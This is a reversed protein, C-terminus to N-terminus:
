IGLWVDKLKATITINKEFGFKKPSFLTDKSLIEENGEEDIIVWASFGYKSDTSTNDNLPINLFDSLKKGFLVEIPNTYPNHLSVVHGKDNYTTVVTIYYRDTAVEGKVYNAKLTINKNFNYISKGTIIQLRDVEEDYYTWCAFNYGDLVPVPLEGIEAYFEVSKEDVSVSGEGADFYITHYVPPQANSCAVLSFVAFVVLLLSILKTKLKM